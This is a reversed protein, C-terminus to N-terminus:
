APTVPGDTGIPAPFCDGGGGWKKACVSALHFKIGPKILLKM